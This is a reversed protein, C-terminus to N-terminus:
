LSLWERALAAVDGINQETSVEGGAATEYGEAAFIWLPGRTTAVRENLAPQVYTKTGSGRPVFGPWARVHIADIRLMLPYRKSALLAPPRGVAVNRMRDLLFAGAARDPDGDTTLFYEAGDVAIRWARDKRVVAFTEDRFQVSMTVM